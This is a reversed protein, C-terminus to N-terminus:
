CQTNYSNPSSFSVNGPGSVKTWEVALNSLNQNDYLVSASLSASSNNNISQDSGADAIYGKVKSGFTFPPDNSGAFYRRMVEFRGNWFENPHDHGGDRSIM